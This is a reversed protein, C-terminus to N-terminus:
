SSTATARASSRRACGSSTPSSRSRRWSSRARVADAAGRPHAARASRPRGRPPERELEDLTLATPGQASSSTSRATPGAATASSRASRPPTAGALPSQPDAVARQILTDIVFDDLADLDADAGQGTVIATLRLLQRWEPELDPEPEMAPPSYNAVNRVALQYLALDYHSRALPSPGPLIVDAHRGAVRVHDERARGREGTRM